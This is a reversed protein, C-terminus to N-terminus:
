PGGRFFRALFVPGASPSLFSSPSSSISTSPTDDPCAPVYTTADSDTTRVEFVNNKSSESAHSRQKFQKCMVRCLVNVRIDTVHPCRQVVSVPLLRLHPLVRVQTLTPRVKTHSHTPALQSLVVPLYPQPGPIPLSTTSCMLESNARRQPTLISCCTPHQSPASLQWEIQNIKRLVFVRQDIICWPKLTTM